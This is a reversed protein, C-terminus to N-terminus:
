EDLSASRLRTVGRCSPLDLNSKARRDQLRRRNSDRRSDTDSVCNALSTKGFPNVVAPDDGWELARVLGVM